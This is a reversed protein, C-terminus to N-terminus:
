RGRDVLYLYETVHAPRGSLNRSGRFANYRTQMVEVRGLGQLLGLMQPKAIFGESNFSVLLFRARVRGVLDALAEFARPRANYASRNWRAPIGSVASIDAGPAEYDTLLNLMFYNSGYPHQNYPPDLYAFDVADVEDVLENADRQYVRSACSFRSLIPASLTIDALIRSLANAGTGGFKGVGTRFNKYFGKFVGSTNAHVSAQALLPALLLPRMADPQADIRQRVSDLYVANRRTYFVREGPMIRADDAPAYLEAIFGPTPEALADRHIMEAARQIAPLDVDERNTLYCQNVVRSYGELDNAILLSSHRKLYRAVVGSGSFLDLCSVTERGLKQKVRQVADDILPLLLRKNGLYTIVQEKLFRPDEEAPLAQPQGEITQLNAHSM